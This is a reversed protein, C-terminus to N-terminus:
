KPINSQLNTIQQGQERVFHGAQRRLLRFDEKLGSLYGGTERASADLADLKHLVTELSAAFRPPLQDASYAVRSSPKEHTVSPKPALSSEQDM